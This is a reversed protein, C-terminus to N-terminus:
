GLREARLHGQAVLTRLFIALRLRVDPQDPFCAVLDQAIAEGTREGDCRSIAASGLDDLRIRFEPNRLLPVLVRRLISGDFRPVRLWVRGDDGRDIGRLRTLRCSLLDPVWGPEVRPTAPPAAPAIAQPDDPTEDPM